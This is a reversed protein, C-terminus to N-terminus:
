FLHRFSFFFAFRCGNLLSFCLSLRFIAALSSLYFHILFYFLFLIPVTVIQFMTILYMKLSTCFYNVRTLHIEPSLCLSPLPLVLLSVWSVCPPVRSYQGSKTRRFNDVKNVAGSELAERLSFSGLHRTNTYM